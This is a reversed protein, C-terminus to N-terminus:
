ADAVRSLSLRGLARSGSSAGDSRQARSVRYGIPPRAAANGGISPLATISACVFGRSLGDAELALGFRPLGMAGGQATGMAHGRQRRQLWRAPLYGLAQDRGSVAVAFPGSTDHALRARLASTVARGYRRLAV